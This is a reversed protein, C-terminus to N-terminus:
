LKAQEIMQIESNTLEYLSYVLQDIKHDLLQAKSSITETLRQKVLKIMPAPNESLCIPLQHLQPSGIRLYNGKLSNGM